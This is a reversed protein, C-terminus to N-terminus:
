VDFYNKLMQFSAEPQDTSTMHGANYVVCFHLLKYSKITGATEEEQTIPNIFKWQTKKQKKWTPLEQWKLLNVWQEVGALTVVTDLQGQYVFIKIKEQLLYEISPLVSISQDEAFAAYIDQNCSNFTINTPLDFQEKHNNIFDEYQVGVDTNYFQINYRFNPGIIENFMIEADRIAIYRDFEKNEAAELAEIGSKMMKGYQYQDIVGYSLLQPVTPTVQVKPHSWAGGIGIGVLNIKTQKKIKEALVPIYHGAYSEGWIHMRANALEKNLEFFQALLEIVYDAADWSSNMMQDRTWYSMGVSFPQDLYLLHAQKNWSTKRAHLKQDDDVLIPGNENFNSDQSSCGPGGYIWVILEDTPKVDSKRTTAEKLYLSYFLRNESKTLDGVSAYGTEIYYDVSPLLNKYFNTQDKSYIVCQGLSILVVLEVFFLM